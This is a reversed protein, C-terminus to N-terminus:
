PLRVFRFDQRKKKLLSIADDRCADAAKTIEDM